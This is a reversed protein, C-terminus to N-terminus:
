KELQSFLTGLEDLIDTPLMAHQSLRAAALDGAAGHLYVGCRAADFLSLGQALLGAIMGALVDGSGAVAMGPNGTQNVSVTGNPAAIVTHHGKLVVVADFRAAATQAATQRDAKIQDVTTHLLRSLEKPHPTLILPPHATELISIHRAAINIGDADLVIPCTAASILAETLQASSLTNGLGCGILLATSKQLPKTLEKVLAAAPREALPAFVVEPLATAAIPYITEPLAAIVLGTGCRSAARAALIAAGAMGYSGCVSLLTGYTGKHSDAARPTFCRKISEPITM